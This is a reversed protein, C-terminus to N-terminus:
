YPASVPGQRGAARVRALFEDLAFPKTLYDTAGADLGMVVDQVRDRATLMLVPTRDGVSRMRCAVSLGDLGPLMIDLVVVDFTAKGLISLADRGDTATVVVHGEETLAQRLLDVMRTDDEVVLVQMQRDELYRFRVQIKGSAARNSPAQVRAQGSFRSRYRVGSSQMQVSQTNRVRM